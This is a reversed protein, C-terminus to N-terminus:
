FNRSHSRDIESKGLTGSQATSVRGDHQSISALVLVKASQAVTLYFLPEEFVPMIVATLWDTQGSHSCLSQYHTACVVHNHSVTNTWVCGLLKEDLTESQTQRLLQFRLLHLWSPLLETIGVRDWANTRVM